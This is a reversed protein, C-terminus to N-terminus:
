HSRGSSSPKAKTWAPTGEHAGHHRSPGSTRSNWIHPRRHLCHSEWQNWPQLIRKQSTLKIKEAFFIQECFQHKKLLFIYIEFLHFLIIEFYLAICVKNSLTCKSQLPLTGTVHISAPIFRDFGPIFRDFGPIFRDFGPFFVVFMNYYAGCYKLAAVSRHLVTLLIHNWPKEWYMLSLLVEFDLSVYICWHLPDDNTWLSKNRESIPPPVVNNSLIIRLWSIFEEVLM